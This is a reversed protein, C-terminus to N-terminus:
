VEVMKEMFSDLFKDTVGLIKRKQCLYYLEEVASYPFFLADLDKFISQNSEAKVKHRIEDPAVIVYRKKIGASVKHFKMMRTMGSTIGTSHEIELVAPMLTGNDFWICDILKAKDIMEAHLGMVKENKLSQVIGEFQLIKKNNYSIGHDNQAIWTRFGLQRGIFYLAIQIQAHRRSQDIDFKATNQPLSTQLAEYYVNKNPIESISLETQIEMMAGSKHPKEPLWMLHKHGKRFIPKGGTSEIRGPYCYYFEPTHALLAELVSRTNYSAGLLRDLNFPVRPEIANAVRWIMETSISESKSTSLGHANKARQIMIPGEPSSTSTVKILGTNRSNVYNYAKRHDLQSIYRVLNSATLREM